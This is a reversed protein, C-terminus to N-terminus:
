SFRDASRLFAAIKAQNLHWQLQEIGDASAQVTLLALPADDRLVLVGPHGNAEVWEVRTGPWFRPRFAAVVAAVKARGVVPVRAAQRVGNGDTYSVVDAALLQELAALDGTQAARLFTELLGVTPPRTSRSAVDPPWTSGPGASWSDSM